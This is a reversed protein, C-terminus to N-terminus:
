KVKLKISDSVSILRDLLNKATLNINIDTGKPVESGINLELSNYNEDSTSVERGDVLWKYDIDGGYWINKVNFFFPIAFFINEGASIQRGAYPADIVIESKAIPIKVLTSLQQGKIYDPLSIRVETEQGGFEATNFVFSKIGLGNKENIRLKDNVYWRAKSKSIDAVKGNDILDFFVEIQSGKTPFIRGQYWVPAYSNTARWSVMFQPQGATQAGVINVLFIFSIFVVFFSFFLIKFEFNYSRM